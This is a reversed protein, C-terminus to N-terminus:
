WRNGVAKRCFFLIGIGIVAVLRYTWLRGWGSDFAVSKIVKLDPAFLDPAFASNGSLVSAQQLLQGLMSFILVVLSIAAVKSWANSAATGASQWSDKSSSGYVVPVVILLEFSLGGIVIAASLFVLWRLWPDAVTQLLPQEVATIQAAASLPEGVAFVFSGIVKHGDVSSLNKWVVTYTGNELEPLGVSMASPESPDRTSDDLDVREAASNIVTVVSFSKEIPESYWIVVRNPSTELESNPSPISNIQNAHADVSKSPSILLVFM